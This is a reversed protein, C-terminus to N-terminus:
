AEGSALVRYTAIATAGPDDVPAQGHARATAYVYVDWGVLADYAEVRYAGPHMAQVLEVAQEETDAVLKQM